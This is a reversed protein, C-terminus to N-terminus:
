AENDGSLPVPFHISKLSAFKPQRGAVTKRSFPFGVLFTHSSTSRIKLQNANTVNVTVAHINNEPFLMDKQQLIKM